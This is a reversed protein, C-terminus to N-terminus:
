TMVALGGDPHVGELRCCVDIERTMRGSFMPVPAEVIAVHYHFDRFEDMSVRLM